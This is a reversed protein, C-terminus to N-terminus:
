AGDARNSRRRAQELSVQLHPFESIFAMAVKATRFLVRLGEGDWSEANHLAYEGPGAENQLWTTIRELEVTRDSRPARVSIGIPYATRTDSASSGTQKTM